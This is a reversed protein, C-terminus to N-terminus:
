NNEGESDAGSVVADVEEEVLEEVVTERKFTSVVRGKKNTKIDDLTLVRDSKVVTKKVMMTKENVTVEVSAKILPNNTSTATITAVGPAQGYVVGDMVTAITEDSTSWVIVDNEGVDSRSKLMLAQGVKLARIGNAIQVGGKVTINVSATASPDEDSTATITASGRSLGTVVGNEVMAINADSSTWTLSADNANEITTEINITNGAKLESDPTTITLVVPLKPLITLTKSASATPDISSTVTIIVEGAELGLVEGEKSVTAVKVDSTTWILTDDESINSFGMLGLTEGARLSDEFATLLVKDICAVTTTAFKTEDETSTVTIDASGASVGTLTGDLDVRIVNEDSSTWSVSKDKANEITYEITATNGVVITELEGISIITEPRPLVKITNSVSLSPEVTSTATITAEGESIGTIMGEKVTAVNEDSSTWVITDDPSVHSTANWAVDDKAMVEFETAELVLGTIVKFTISASKTDDEVSTVLITAQGDSVGTVLGDNTVTAVSTDSSDWIVTPDDANTVYASFQSEKGVFISNTGYVEVEIPAKPIVHIVRESYVNEDNSSTARVTVDGLEIATLVGNEDITAISADSTSWIITDNEVNSKASLELTKSVFVESEDDLFAIGEIIEIELVALKELDANPRASIVTTGVSVTTVNGEQDVKAVSEDSSSWRASTDDAHMVNAILAFQQGLIHTAEGVLEISVPPKVTIEREVFVSEDAKSSAVIATTGEGVGTVLGNEDVTAISEDRSTWVVTDDEEVNSLASFQEEKSIIITDVYGDFVVGKYVTISLTAVKDEQEVSTVSITANGEAIPTVVGNEDVTIVNEDSSSWVVTPDDAYLINMELQVTKGLIARSSGSLELLIAPTPEVHINAEKYLEPDVASSARIVVDGGLMDIGTVVGDVVTAINEDSSTWVISDDETVNTIASLTVTTKRAMLTTENVTLEIGEKVVIELSATKTDDEASTVTITASGVEIGSVVGNDDVTAVTEDSTTWLATPDDANELRLQLAVNRGKIVKTEGTLELVIDSRVEITSSASLTDDILSTATITAVGDSVGTINGNEDVTAVNEDSSSWVISDDETVNSKASWTTVKTARIISKEVTLEVGDYVNLTVSCSKTPDEVSTATITAVGAMIGSITGNEDITAISEDSTEYTVSPDDASTVLLEFAMTKTVIAKPEGNLTVTIAPRVHLNYEAYLTPDFGSAARVTVDGEAIGLIAGTDSITAINEDSTTWIITDEDVVNSIATVDTTLDAVLQDRHEGIIIAEKVVVDLTAFKDQEELSTCTITASGLGVGTVVGFEDVTAVTEDSSTWIATPDVANIVTGILENTRTRIVKEEGVLTVSVIPKPLVRVKWTNSISPDITSIATITVEGGDWSIGEVLGSQSVTAISEDSSFLMIMDDDSVNSFADLQLTTRRSVIEHSAARLEIGDLPHIYISHSKTPDEVSFATIIVNGASHAHVVGDVVTAVAENSSHWIVSLDDANRVIPRLTAEKTVLIKEITPFEVTIPPRPYVHMEYETFCTPDEVSTARIKVDGEKWGSVYGTQDVTAVTEDSSSWVLSPDAIYYEVFASLQAWTTKATIETDGVITIEIPTVIALLLEEDEERAAQRVANRAEELAKRAAEEERMEQLKKQRLREAEKAAKLEEQEKLFAEREAQRRAKLAERRAREKEMKAKRLYDNGRYAKEADSPNEKLDKTNRERWRLYEEDVRVYEPYDGTPFFTFIDDDIDTMVEPNKTEIKTVVDKESPKAKAALFNAVTLNNITELDATEPTYYEEKVTFEVGLARYMEMFRFLNYVKHYKPNKRIINTQMVPSRVNKENKFRKMFDSSFFFKAYRRMLNIRKMLSASDEGDAAGTGSARSVVVKSEVDVDLGNVTSHNKVYLIDYDKLESYKVIYDYRKEIFLVLRRVVTAVFKNEYTIYEDDSGINLIKSPIVDGNEDIDKVYQTHSALHKVSESGTKKALEVPVIDTVIKTNIRPNKLIEDIAPIADEVAKVWAMDFSGTEHRSLRLTHLSNGNGILKSLRDLDEDELMASKIVNELVKNKLEYDFLDKQKEVVATAKVAHKKPPVRDSKPNEREEAEELEKQEQLEKEYAERALRDKEEQEKRELEARDEAEEEEIREEDRLAAEALLAIDSANEDLTIDEEVVKEEELVEEEDFTIKDADFLAKEQAKLEKALELLGQDELSVKGGNEKKPQNKAKGFDKKTLKSKKGKNSAHASSLSSDAGNRTATSENLNEFNKKESM